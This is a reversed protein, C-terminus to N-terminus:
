EKTIKKNLDLVQQLSKKPVIPQKRHIKQETSCKRSITYLQVMHILTTRWEFKYPFKGFEWGGRDQVSIAGQDM